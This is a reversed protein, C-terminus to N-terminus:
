SGLTQIGEHGVEGVRMGLILPRDGIGMGVEEALLSRVESSM